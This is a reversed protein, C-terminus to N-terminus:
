KEQHKVHYIIALRKYPLCHHVNEECISYSIQFSFSTNRDLSAYFFCTLLSVASQTKLYNEPIFFERNIKYTTFNWGAHSSWVASTNLM